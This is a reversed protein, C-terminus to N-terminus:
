PSVWGASPAIPNSPSQPPTSACRRTSTKLGWRGSSLLSTPTSGSATPGRVNAIRLLAVAEKRAGVRSLESALRTLSQPPLAMPDVETALTKLDVIAKVMEREKRNIADRLRNRWPDPDLARAVADIRRAGPHDPKIRDRRNFSWGDLSMALDAAIPRAAIRAAAEAAPLAEVDVGYERFAAAYDADKKERSSHVAFDDGIEELRKLLRRDRAAAEAKARAEDSERALAVQLGQVRSRLADGGGGRGLITEAQRAAAIADGWRSVDGIPAARAQGRLVAARDLAANVERATAAARAARDRALWAWGAGGLLMTLVVSAALGVELRRRRREEAAHAQAARALEDALVRGKAEEEARAQAEARAVEARRLREQVGNLYERM